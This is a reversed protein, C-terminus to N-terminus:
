PGMLRSKRWVLIALVLCIVGTIVISIKHSSSARGSDMLTDGLGYYPLYCEEETHTISRLEQLKAIVIETVKEKEIFERRTEVPFVDIGNWPKYTNKERVFFENGRMDQVNEVGSRIVEWKSEPLLVAWYIGGPQKKPSTNKSELCEFAITVVDRGSEQRLEAGVPKFTESVFFEELPIGWISYAAELVSMNYLLRKTPYKSDTARTFRKIYFDGVSSKRLSFANHENSADVETPRESYALMLQRGPFVVFKSERIKNSGTDEAPYKTSHIVNAEFGALEQQLTHWADTAEGRVRNLLDHDLGVSRAFFEDGAAEYHRFAFFAFIVGLKLLTRKTPLIQISQLNM